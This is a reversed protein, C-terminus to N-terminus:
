AVVRLQKPRESIRRLALALRPLDQRSQYVTYRPIWEDAYKAKFRRLSDARFLFPLRKMVWHVVREDCSAAHTHNEDSLPAMGLCFRLEGRQKLDLFVKAFLYDMLGNVCDPRRRMLDVTALGPGYSPVLNLFAVAENASDFAVYVPSTQVYWREFRGLTFQRERHGPIELWSDSIRQLEDLVPGPITPDFRQIRYGLRDLRNVTNRFEKMSSGQLSFKSLDVIADDGVKLRRFGLASYVSLLQSSVQHFGVRWGRNRCFAVFEAVTSELNGSPGVPDGLVLAYGNSVRYALFSQGSASFFFSKDPWQKFYDQATQGHRAVIQEAVSADHGNFRFRYAVPRFLVFGSYLFASASMWYLSDLLWVAYHTQPTLSSDALLFMTQVARGIADQWHFNRHFEAPELLWFGLAGYACAIAYAGTARLVAEGLSPTGSGVSFQRRTCALTAAILAACVASKLDAERALHSYVSAITMAMALHWARRKYGWLHLASLIVAFGSLLTLTRPVGSFCVPFLLRLWEPVATSEAGGLLSFLNLTGSGAMLLTVIRALFARWSIGSETENAKGRSGTTDTSSHHHVVSPGDLRNRHGDLSEGASYLAITQDNRTM